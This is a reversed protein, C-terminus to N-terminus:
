FDGDPRPTQGWGRMDYRLVRYHQSLAAMQEDWMSLNAIGAHILTVHTGEGQIDYHITTGNIKAFQHTM